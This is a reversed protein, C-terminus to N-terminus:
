AAQALMGMSTRPLWGLYVVLHGLRGAWTSGRIDQVVLGSLGRSMRPPRGLYVRPRDLCRAWM